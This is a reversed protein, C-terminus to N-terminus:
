YNDLEYDNEIKRNSKNIFAAKLIGVLIYVKIESIFRLTSLVPEPKNNSILKSNTSIM